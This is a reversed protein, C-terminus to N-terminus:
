SEHVMRLKRALNRNQGFLLLCCLIAAVSLAGTIKVPLAVLAAAGGSISGSVWLNGHNDLTMINKTNETNTIRFGAPASQLVLHGNYFDDRYVATDPQGAKRFVIRSDPALALAADKFPTHSFDIGMRVPTTKSLGIVAGDEHMSYQSFLLGNEWSGGEGALIEIANTSRYDGPVSACPGLAVIQIGVKSHNPAIGPLAKNNVDIELGVLPADKGYTNSTNLFGAWARADKERAVATGWIGVGYVTPSSNEVISQLGQGQHILSDAPIVQGVTLTTQLPGLPFYDQKPNALISDGSYLRMNPSRMDLVTHTGSPAKIEPSSGKPFVVLLGPEQAAAAVAKEQNDLWLPHRVSAGGAREAELIAKVKDTYHLVNEQNMLPQNIQALEADSMLGKQLAVALYPISRPSTFPGNWPYGEPRAFVAAKAALNPDYQVTNWGAYRVLSVILEEVTMSKDHWSFSILGDYGGPIISPYFGYLEEPIDNSRSLKLASELILAVEFTKLAARAPMATFIIFALQILFVIGVQKCKMARYHLKFEISM